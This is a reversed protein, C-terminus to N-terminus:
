HILLSSSNINKYGFPKEQIIKLKEPIIKSENINNKNKADITLQNIRAIIQDLM